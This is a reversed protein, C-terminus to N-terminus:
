LRRIRGQVRADFLPNTSLHRVLADLDVAGVRRNQGETFVSFGNGGSALFSNVVVRYRGETALPAGLITVREVRGGVPKRSDWAYELGSVELFHTLGSSWQQELARVIQAGTLDMSILTNSFPQIAFLEGWTIEGRDLSTRIGGANMLAIEAGESARQADAILNGLASEGADNLQVPLAVRAHGVVRSTLAVVRAKASEVLRAVDEAPALGAGEDAWTPVIRASKESVDGRERDVRLTIDAYATGASAAQTVLIAHGNRNKMLANTFAHAHGSIVVDVEDDLAEILSVIGELPGSVDSRTDGAYPEQAGGQHVTVVIARIGKQKLKQVERNIAQAASVFRVFRIGPAPVLTPTEETVAGIVALRVPGLEKVVSAPLLTRQTRTDIVNAAVYPFTVGRYPALFPGNEHDGGRLLRLLEPAGEDFEHNGPAAVLNCRPDFRVLNRPAKRACADNGLLNLVELAPEDQLLASSPPSAGVWDGAHIILHRGEHARVANRLHAALVAAGGVPRGQFTRGAELQGHFDNLGLLKVEVSADDEARATSALLSLAFLLSAVSRLSAPWLGSSEALAYKARAASVAIQGLRTM